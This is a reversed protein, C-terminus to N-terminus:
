GPQQIKAMTEAKKEFFDSICVPAYKQNNM